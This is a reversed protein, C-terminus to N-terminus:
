DNASTMEYIGQRISRPKADFNTTLKNIDIRRHKIPMRRPAHHIKVHGLMLETMQKAIDFFSMSAGSAVNFDGVIRKELAENLILALDDGHLHDRIEEGTGFVTVSRENLIQKLFKMIGYSQHTDEVGYVACPRLICYRNPDFMACLLRERILHSAGYMSDPVKPTSESITETQFGFVADTSVYVLHRFEINSIAKLVNIFMTVNEIMLCTSSAREPTLAALMVIDDEISVIEKIKNVAGAELLDLSKSGLARTDYGKFNSIKVFTAGIGGTGGFVIRAM